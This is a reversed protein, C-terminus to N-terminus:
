NRLYFRAMEYIIKNFSIPIKEFEKHHRIFEKKCLEVIELTDKDIRQLSTSM